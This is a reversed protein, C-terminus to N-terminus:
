KKSMILEYACSNMIVQIVNKIQLLDCRDTRFNEKQIFSTWQWSAGLKPSSDPNM